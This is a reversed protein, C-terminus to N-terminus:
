AFSHTIYETMTNLFCQTDSYLGLSYLSLGHICHLYHGCCRLQYRQHVLTFLCWGFFGASTCVLLDPLLAKDSQVTHQILWASPQRTVHTLAALFMAASHILHVINVSLWVQGEAGLESCAGHASLLWVDTVEQQSM